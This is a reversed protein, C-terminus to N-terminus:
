VIQNFGSMKLRISPIEESKLAKKSSKFNSSDLSGEIFPFIYNFGLEPFEVQIIFFFDKRPFHTFLLGSKM